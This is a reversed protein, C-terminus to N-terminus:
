STIELLRQMEEEPRILLNKGLSLKYAPCTHTLATIIPLLVARENPYDPTMYLPSTGRVLAAFADAHSAKVAECEQRNPDITSIWICNPLLSDLFAGPASERSLLWRTEAGVDVLELPIGSNSIPDLNGAGRLLVDKRFSRLKVVGSPEMWALLTDDSVVKWDSKMGLFALTSKGAGSEGLILINRGKHSLAAGHVLIAGQELLALVLDFEFVDSDLSLWKRDIENLSSAGPSGSWVREVSGCYRKVM